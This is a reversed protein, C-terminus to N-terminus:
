PLEQEPTVSPQPAPLQPAPKGSPSLLLRTSDSVFRFEGATEMVKEITELHMRNWVLEPNQRYQAFMNEFLAVEEEAKTVLETRHRTAENVLSNRQSEAQPITQAAFGEAERKRTEIAIRESQVKQFVDALQPTPLIERFEIATLEIGLELFDAREQAAARIVNALREAPVGAAVPDEALEEAAIVPRNLDPVDIEVPAAEAVARQLRLADQVHWTAITQVTAATVLDTLVREPEATKLQFAIPDVIRYKVHLDVQLVHQDGSLTYGDLIPDLQGSGGGGRLRLQTIAAEREQQVPVRIVQDIPYPLALLLGPQRVQTQPTDGVLRGMRLVLAVEGPQVVTIGSCWFLILLIVALYGVVRLGEAIGQAAAMGSGRGSKKPPPPPTFQGASSQPQSM